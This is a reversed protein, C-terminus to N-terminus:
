LVNWYALPARLNALVKNVFITQCLSLDLLFLSLPLSKCLICFSKWTVDRFVSLIYVLFYALGFQLYDSEFDAVDSCSKRLSWSVFGAVDFCSINELMIDPHNSVLFAAPEELLNHMM